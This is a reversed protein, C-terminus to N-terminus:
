PLVGCNVTKPEPDLCDSMIAVIKTLMTQALNVVEMLETITIVFLQAKLKVGM